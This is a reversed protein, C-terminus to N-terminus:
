RAQDTAKAGPGRTAAELIAIMECFKSTSDVRLIRFPSLLFVEMASRLMASSDKGIWYLMVPNKFETVVGRMIEISEAELPTLHGPLARNPQVSPLDYDHADTRVAFTFDVRHHM